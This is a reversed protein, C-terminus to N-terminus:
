WLSIWFFIASSIAQILMFGVFAALTVGVLLLMQRWGTLEFVSRWIGVQYVVSLILYVATFFHMGVYLGPVLMIIALFNQFGLIFANVAIHEALNFETKRFAAWTLVANIPLAAILIANAWTISLDFMRQPVTMKLDERARRAISARFRSRLPSQEDSTQKVVESLLQDAQALKKDVETPRSPKSNMPPLIAPGRMSVAVFMLTATLAASLFLYRLPNTLGNREGELYSKITQGPRFALDRTTRIVGKEMSLFASVEGWVMAM